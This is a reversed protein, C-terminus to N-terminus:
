NDDCSINTQLVTDTSKCSPQSLWFLKIIIDSIFNKLLM